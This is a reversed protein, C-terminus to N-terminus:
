PMRKHGDDPAPLAHELQRQPRNGEASDEVENRDNILTHRHPTERDDGQM